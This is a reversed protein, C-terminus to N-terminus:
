GESWQLLGLDVFTHLYGCRECVVGTGARDLWDLGFFTLATTNLMVERRTFRDAGCVVCSLPRGAVTVTSGTPDTM